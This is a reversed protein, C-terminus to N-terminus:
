QESGLTGQCVSFDVKLAQIFEPHIRSVGPPGTLLGREELFVWHSGLKMFGCSETLKSRM